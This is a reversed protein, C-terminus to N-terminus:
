GAGDAVVAAAGALWWGADMGLCCPTRGAIGSSPCDTRLHCPSSHGMLKGVAERSSPVM